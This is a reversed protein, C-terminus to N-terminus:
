SDGICLPDIRQDGPPTSVEVHCTAECKKPARQHTHHLVIWPPKNPFNSQQFTPIFYHELEMWSQSGPFWLKHLLDVRQSNISQLRLTNSEVNSLPAKNAQRHILITDFPFLLILHQLFNHFAEGNNVNVDLGFPHEFVNMALMKLSM